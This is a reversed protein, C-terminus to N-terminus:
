VVGCLRISKLFFGIRRPMQVQGGRSAHLGGGQRAEQIVCVDESWKVIRELKVFPMCHM